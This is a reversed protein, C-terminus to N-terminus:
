SEIAPDNDTPMESSNDRFRIAKKVATRVVHKATSIPIREFDIEDFDYRQAGLYRKFEDAGSTASEGMHFWRAGDECANQLVVWNLLHSAGLHRSEPDMAARTGHANPGRVVIGGAVPQDNHWAVSVQLDPGLHKAIGAWKAESDRLRGRMQALWNPEHQREAWYARATMTLQFFEPLLRGHTGTEVRVGAKEATKIGKLASRRFRARVAEAGGELDVVFSKKPTRRMEPVFKDWLHAHIPNPRLWFRLAQLSKLDESVIKIDAPAVGAAAIIGGYGWGRRPSMVTSAAGIGLRILPFVIRRGEATVYLRSADQWLSGACTADMWEPSQSPMADPDSALVSRWIERPVPSIAEADDM